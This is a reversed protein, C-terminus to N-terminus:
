GAGRVRCPRHALDSRVGCLRSLARRLFEVAAARGPRGVPLKLFLTLLEDGGRWDPGWRLENDVFWGVVAPDDRYPGCLEAARQNCSHRSRPDFVDPFADGWPEAPGAFSFAFKQGLDLLPTIALTTGAAAVADDSWAGVTNLGFAAMRAAAATRWAEVSGYKALCAEAYPFRETAGARDPDIRVNNLGKSLLRGGDPDVLWWVKDLLATRFFGTACLRDDRRGGWRTANTLSKTM